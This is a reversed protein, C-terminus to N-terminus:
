RNGVPSARRNARVEEEIATILRRVDYDFDKARLDAAQRFALGALPVSLADEPPISAGDTLVPIVPIGRELLVSLEMAVYDDPDELRRDGAASGTDMWGPSIIVLGVRCTQLADMLGIRFDNGKKLSETDKFVAAKGFRSRLDKYLRGVTIEDTRRYSIFICREPVTVKRKLHRSAPNYFYVLLFASGGSLAIGAVEYGPPVGTIWPTGAAICACAMALTTRFVIYQLEQPNPVFIVAVFVM